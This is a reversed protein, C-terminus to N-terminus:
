HNFTTTVIYNHMFTVMIKQGLARLEAAQKGVATSLINGASVQERSQEIISAVARVLGPEDSNVSEDTVLIFAYFLVGFYIIELHFLYCLLETIM